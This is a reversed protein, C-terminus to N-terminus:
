LIAMVIESARCGGTTPRQPLPDMLNLTVGLHIPLNEPDLPSPSPALVLFHPDDFLRQYGTGHHALDRPPVVHRLAQKERPSPPRSHFLRAPSVAQNQQRNLDSRYRRRGPGVRCPLRARGRASSSRLGNLM